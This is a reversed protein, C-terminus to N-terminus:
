ANTQATRGRTDDSHEQAAVWSALAARNPLGLKALIRKVHAKVTGEAINLKAGIQSSTLGAAVLGAVQRERMSMEDAVVTRPGRPVPEGLAIQIAHLYNRRGDAYAAAAVEEGLVATIQAQATASHAAFPGLGAMRVGLDSQHRQAAGLLRMATRALERPNRAGPLQAAMIWAALELGWTPGWRDRMDRQQGLSIDTHKAATELDGSNLDALGCNWHAWSIDWPAQAQEAQRLHQRSAERAVEPEGALGCAMAFVMAAMQRDGAFEAGSFLDRVAALLGMGERLGRGLAKHGGEAFLLPPITAMGRQDLLDRATAILAAAEDTRGVTVAIWGAMAATAAVDAIVAADVADSDNAISDLSADIVRRLYTFLLGLFGWIFPARGRGLDRCIARATALDSDELCRDVVALIDDLQRHVAAMVDLEDPGFWAVATHAVFSRHYDRHLERLRQTDGKLEHLGFDRVTHLMNYRTPEGQGLSEATLVSKKVLGTVLAQVKAPDVGADGALSTIAALEFAGAFIAAVAWVRQEEPSCLDYSWAMVQEIDPLVRFRNELGSHLEKVSLAATLGAALRIALPLGDLRQCLGKLDPDSKSIRTATDGATAHEIFLDVADPLALPPVVIKYEGELGLVERSTALIRVHPAAVLLERLFERTREVIHECNDLVLMVKQGRLHDLVTGLGPTSNHHIKLERALHAYHSEPTYGAQGTLARIDIVWAGDVAVKQVIRLALRTKGVGGSGTLTILRRHKVLNCARALLDDRGLFATIDLPVNGRIEVTM